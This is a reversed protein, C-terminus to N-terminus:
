LGTEMILRGEEDVYLFMLLEGESGILVQNDLNDTYGSLMAILNRYTIPKM